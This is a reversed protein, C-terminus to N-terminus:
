GTPIVTKNKKLKRVLLENHEKELFDVLQRIKLNYTYPMLTGKMQTPSDLNNGLAKKKEFLQNLVSILEKKDQPNFLMGNQETILCAAGAVNSCIVPVGAILAENVVAGFPEWTSPLVFYDAVGFWAYLEKHEYRGAFIVKDQLNLKEALLILVAKQDGDGVLILVANENQKVYENFVEILFFLNKVAVLRGVFLLVDRGALKYKDIYTQTISKADEMISLIREEKQIIPFVITRVKPFNNNYWEEVFENDLILGDLVLFCMRRGLRRGLSSTKAVDVSDDCMSYVLTRPFLIKTFLTSLFAIWNFEWVLLIDPKHQVIKRLYGFRVLRGKGRFEFGCTIFHPIFNLQSLLKNMDFQQSRLNSRFLYINADFAESLDNFFDISYPALAKNFVLLKKKM